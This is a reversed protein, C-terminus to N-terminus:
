LPTSSSLQIDNFFLRYNDPLNHRTSLHLFQTKSANSVVLNARSWDYIKSLDSTLRETTDM